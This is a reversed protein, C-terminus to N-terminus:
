GPLSIPMYSQFQLLLVLAGVLLMLCAAYTAYSGILHRRYRDVWTMSVVGLVPYGTFDQLARTSHFVPKLMHLLWALGGGAGLAIVLVGSMLLPRNPSVPKFSAAPPNIVEFKIAETSEAQQGLEAKELRAVFENYQGRKLDYDRNLGYYEAEVQPVINVLARLSEVARQKTGLESRIAAVEVEAENLWQQIRQVVPSSTSAGALARGGRLAAIEQERLAQLQALTQKANVVDPHRDTYEAQLERLQAETRKISQVTPSDADLLATVEADAAPDGLLQRQLEDRRTIAVTLKAQLQEVANMEAQLRAFYDGQAGPMQGINRRKFDAMRQEMVRLEAETEAIRERLFKQQAETDQRKGGLTDEVFTDLLFEVAKLSTERDTSGYSITYVAGTGGTGVGSLSVSDRIYSILRAKEEPTKLDRDLGLETALRELQQQGLLSQGVLNIQANIDQSITMGQLVPALATRTDVYVSAQAGYVNPQMAIVAWGALCTAWAAALAWWRFRSAGIIQETLQDVLKQWQPNM